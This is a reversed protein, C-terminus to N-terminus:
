HHHHHHRHHQHHHHQHHGINSLAAIWSAEDKSLEVEQYSQDFIRYKEDLSVDESFIILTKEENQLSFRRILNILAETTRQHFDEVCKIM